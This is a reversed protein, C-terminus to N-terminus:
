ARSLACAPSWRRSRPRAPPGALRVEIVAGFPREPLATIVGALDPFDAIVRATAQDTDLVDAAAVAADARTMTAAADRQAPSADRAMYVSLEAAETMRTTVDRLVGSVVLAAAVVLVAAALLTTSLAAVRWRRTLSLRAEALCYRLFGAAHVDERRRATM